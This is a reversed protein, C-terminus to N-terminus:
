FSGWGQQHTGAWGHGAAPTASDARWVRTREMHWHQMSHRESLPPWVQQPSSHVHTADTVKFLLRKSHADRTTVQFWILRTYSTALHNFYIHREFNGFAKTQINWSLTWAARLQKIVIVMSTMVLFKLLNRHQTGASYLYAGLYSQTITVLKNTMYNHAQPKIFQTKFNTCFLMGSFGGPLVNKLQMYIFM